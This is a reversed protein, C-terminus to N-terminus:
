AQMGSTSSIRPSSVVVQNLLDRVVLQEGCLPNYLLSGGVSCQKSMHFGLKQGCKTIEEYRLNFVFNGTIQILQSTVMRHLLWLSGFLLIQTVFVVSLLM